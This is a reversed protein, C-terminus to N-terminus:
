TKQFLHSIDSTFTLSTDIHLVNLLYHYFANFTHQVWPFNSPLLLLISQM